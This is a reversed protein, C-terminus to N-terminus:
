HKHKHKVYMELDFILSKLDKQKEELAKRRYEYFLVVALIVSQVAIFVLGEMISGFRFIDHM